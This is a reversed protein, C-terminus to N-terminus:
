LWEQEAWLDKWDDAPMAVNEGPYNWAIYNGTFERNDWESLMAKTFDPLTVLFKFSFKQYRQRLENIGANFATNWILGKGCRNRYQALDKHTTASIVVAVDINRLTQPRNKFFTAAQQAWEEVHVSNDSAPLSLQQYSNGKLALEIFEPLAEVHSSAYELEPLRLNLILRPVHHLAELGENTSREDKFRGLTARCINTAEENILRCTQLVSTPSWLVVLMLQPNAKHHMRAIPLLEYVILRLELPLDLFRFPRDASSYNANMPQTISTDHPPTSLQPLISTLAQCSPLRALNHALSLPLRVLQLHLHPTGKGM